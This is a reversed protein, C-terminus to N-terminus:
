VNVLNLLEEMDDIDISFGGEAAKGILFGYKIGIVNCYDRYPNNFAYEPM